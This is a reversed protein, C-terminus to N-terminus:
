AKNFIEENKARMREVLELLEKKAKPSMKTERLKLELFDIMAYQNGISRYISM